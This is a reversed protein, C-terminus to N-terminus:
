GARKKVWVLKKQGLGGVKPPPDQTVEAWLSRDSFVEICLPLHGDHSFLVGGPVLLPYIYRLCSRTSSALDVDIFAVAVPEQFLPMTNEFWGSKFECVSLEGFKELNSSVEKLSGEYSKAPFGAKEGFIDIKHQETNTPIGEFSDFVYLKRGTMRALISLKCTSGGKFCGAEVICGPIDKPLGLITKAIQMMEHHTHACRVLDHITRFRNTLEHRSASSLDFQPTKEFITLLLEDRAKEQWTWVRRKWGLIPRPVFQRLTDKLM